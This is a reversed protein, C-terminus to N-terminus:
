LVQEYKAKNINKALCCALLAGLLPLFSIGLAVGGILAMNAKMFTTVTKFCGETYIDLTANSHVMPLNTNECRERAVRCCSMPVANTVNKTKVTTEWPTNFWDMYSDYGCCQLQWQLGDFARTKEDDSGYKSLAEDLGSQFGKVLKDKYVFGAVGSSLEVTFMLILFASYMYLLIANGKVTCCCGFSVILVIVAGIAILIYPAEKCYVTSLEMYM